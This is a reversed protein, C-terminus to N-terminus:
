LFLSGQEFTTFAVKSFFFYLAPGPVLCLLALALVRREGYALALLPTFVMTAIMFGLYDLAIYYLILLAVVGLIAVVNSDSTKRENPEEKQTKTRRMSLVFQTCGLFLTLYSIMIPWFRPSLTENPLTGPVAIYQPIIICRMFLAFVIFFLGLM